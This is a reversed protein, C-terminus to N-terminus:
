KHCEGENRERRRGKVEVEERTERGGGDRRRSVGEEEREREGFELCQM